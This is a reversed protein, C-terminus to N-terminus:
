GMALDSSRIDFLTHLIRLHLGASSAPPPPRRLGSTSTLPPPMPPPRLIPPSLSLRRDQLTHLSPNPAHSNYTKQSRLRQGVVAVVPSSMEVTSFPWRSSWGEVTSCPTKRQRVAVVCRRGGGDLLRGTGGELTAEYAAATKM